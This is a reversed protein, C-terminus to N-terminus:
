MIAPIYRNQEMEEARIMAKKTSGRVLNTHLNRNMVECINGLNPSSSLFSPFSFSVPVCSSTAVNLCMFFFFWISIIGRVNQDPTSCPNKPASKVATLIPLSKIKQDKGVELTKDGTCVTNM